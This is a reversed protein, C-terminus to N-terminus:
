RRARSRGARAASTSRRSPSGRRSAASPWPRRPIPRRRTGTEARIVEQRQEIRLREGRVLEDVLHRLEEALPLAEQVLPELSASPSWLTSSCPTMRRLMPLEEIREADGLLHEQDQEGNRAGRDRREVRLGLGRVDLRRELRVRLPLPLAPGRRLDPARGERLADDEAEAVQAVAAERVHRLRLGTVQCASSGASTAAAVAWATPTSSARNSRVGTASM